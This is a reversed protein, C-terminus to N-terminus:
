TIDALLDVIFWIFMLKGKGDETRVPVNSSGSTSTTTRGTEETHVRVTPPGQCPFAATRLLTKSPHKWFPLRRGGRRRHDFVLTMTWLLDSGDGRYHRHSASSPDFGFHQPRIM